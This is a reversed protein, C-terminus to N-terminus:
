SHVITLEGGLNTSPNTSGSTPAITAELVYSINFMESDVVDGHIDVARATVLFQDESSPLIMSFNSQMITVPSLVHRNKADLIVLQCVIFLDSRALHCNARLMNKRASTTFNQLFRIGTFWLIMITNFINEDM